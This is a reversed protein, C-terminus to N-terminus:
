PSSPSTRISLTLTMVVTNYHLFFLGEFVDEAVKDCCEERPSGEECEALEDKLWGGKRKRESGRM